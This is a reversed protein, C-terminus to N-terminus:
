PHLKLIHPITFVLHARHAFGWGVAPEGCIAARGVECDGWTACALDGHTM